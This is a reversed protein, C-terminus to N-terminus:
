YISSLFAKDVQDKVFCMMFFTLYARPKTIRHIKLFLNDTGIGSQCSGLPKKTIKKWEPIEMSQLELLKKSFGM